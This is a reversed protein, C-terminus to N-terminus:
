GGGPKKIQMVETVRKKVAGGESLARMLETKAAGKTGRKKGDTFASLLRTKGITVCQALQNETLGNEILIPWAAQADIVDRSQEVLALEHDNGDSLPGDRLAIRLAQDFQDLAHRLLKARPYLSALVERTVAVGAASIVAERASSLFEHRASCVLQRRCYHCPDGPAYVEGIERQAREVSHYLGEVDSRDFTWVDFEGFRLWALVAVVKGSEPWGYQATAAAVYGLVQPLYARKVRNSKWDLIGMRVGDYAFVDATGWIEGGDLPEETRPNPFHKEVERWAAEGSSVLFSLEDLDVGHKKAIAPVDPVSGLVRTALADHTADGTLGAVSGPDYPHETELM